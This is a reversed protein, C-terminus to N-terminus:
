KPEVVIGMFLNSGTKNDRIVCFFPRDVKMNFQQSIGKMMEVVTVAAAETGEENVDIFTKHIVRSIWAPGSTMNTFDAQTTFAIPMGLKKLPENLLTNYEIKFRPLTIDGDMEKFQGIWKNWNEANLNKLFKTLNSNTNPLFIYMSMRGNGYPLSVAQFNKDQMYRYNGSQSMMPIQKQKGRLLYFTDDKTKYKDFQNAWKGKFYIANILYLFVDKEIKEIVKNIKNATKKSIWNNIIDPAKPDGFNLMTIEADYFKKNRDLFDPKIKEGQKIWLSNAINLIVMSDTSQLQITLELNTQNVQELTFNEIGLTKAMQKQTEGLAGNYTMALAFSISTPSIFVNEKQKRKNLESFIRFGFNNNALVIKESLTISDKPTEAFCLLTILGIIICSIFTKM